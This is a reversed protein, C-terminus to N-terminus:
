NSLMKVCNQNGLGQFFSIKRLKRAHWSSLPGQLSYFENKLRQTNVNSLDRIHKPIINISPSTKSSPQLVRCPHMFLCYVVQQVPPWSVIATISLLFGYYAPAWTTPPHNSNASSAPLDRHPNKMWRRSWSLTKVILHRITADKTAAGIHPPWSLPGFPTM